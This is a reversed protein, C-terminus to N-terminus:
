EFGNAFVADPLGGADITTVRVPITTLGTASVSITAQDDVADADVAAALRVVQPRMWNTSNFTLSAGAVVGIDADGSTRSTNVVIDILPAVALRVTTVAEGGEDLRLNQNAVVLAPTTTNFAARLINNTATGTYYLAGDPGQAVDVQATISTAWYDTSLVANSAPDIRARM